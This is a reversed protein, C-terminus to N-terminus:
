AQKGSGEEQQAADQSCQKTMEVQEVSTSQTSIRVEKRQSLLTFLRHTNGHYKLPIEM